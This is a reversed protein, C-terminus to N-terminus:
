PSRRIKLNESQLQVGLKVLPILQNLSTAISELAAPRNHDSTLSMEQLHLKRKEVEVIASINDEKEIKRKKQNFSPTSENEAYNHDRSINRRTPIATTTQQIPLDSLIRRSTTSSSSASTQKLPQPQMPPDIEIDGAILEQSQTGPFKITQSVFDALITSIDKMVLSVSSRSIGHVDLFM